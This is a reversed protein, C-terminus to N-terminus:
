RVAEVTSKLPLRLLQGKYVVYFKQNSEDVWMAMSDFRVHPVVLVPKFSFDKLNYRGVQTQGKEMDPMAAWFEDPKATPQLFRKGKDFLPDFEGSVLKTEGTAADLLYFEPRDPGVSNKVYEDKSRHM